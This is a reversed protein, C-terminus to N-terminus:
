KSGDENDIGISTRADKEMRELLLNAAPREGLVDLTAHLHELCQWILTRDANRDALTKILDEIHQRTSALEGHHQDDTM